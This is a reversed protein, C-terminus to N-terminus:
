TFRLIMYQTTTLINQLDKVSIEIKFPNFSRVWTRELTTDDEIAMIYDCLVDISDAKTVPMDKTSLGVMLFDNTCGDTSVKVPARKDWDDVFWRQLDAQTIPGEEDEYVVESDDLVHLLKRKNSDTPNELIEVDSPSGSDVEKENKYLLCGRRKNLDSSLLIAAMKKRFHSMDDQTFSDSLEDGTWYEIYNLLFLGCSSSDTQKAYGM